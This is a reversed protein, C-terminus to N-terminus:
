DICGSNTIIGGQSGFGKLEKKIAKEDKGIKRGGM